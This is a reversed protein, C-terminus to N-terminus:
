HLSKGEKDNREEKKERRIEELIAKVEEAIELKSHIYADDNVHYLSHKEKERYPYSRLDKKLFDKRMEEENIESKDMIDLKVLSAAHARIITSSDIKKNTRAVIHYGIETLFADYEEITDGYKSRISDFVEAEVSLAYKIETIVKRYSDRLATDYCKRRYESKTTGKKKEYNEFDFDINRDVRAIEEYYESKLLYNIHESYEEFSNVDLITFINNNWFMRRTENARSIPTIAYNLDDSNLDNDWTPDAMFIGHIGYKDDDISILNRSHGAQTVPTEELTFGKDYSTDITVSFEECSIGVKECLVELLKAFGVCVMYENDLIYRLKRAQIKDNENEKYEKYNKVINYVAIYRELPSLDSKNIDEVMEDLRKDEKLYEELPYDYLDSTIVLAVSNLKIDYLSSNKFDERNRIPLKVVIDKGLEDLKVLLERLKDYHISEYKSEVISIVTNDSIFKLRDKNIEEIKTLDLRFNGSIARVKSIDGIVKNSSISTVKDNIILNAEICQSNITEIIDDTLEIDDFTFSCDSKKELMELVLNKSFNFKNFRIMIPNDLMNNRLAENIREKYMEFFSEKINLYGIGKTPIAVPHDDDIYIMEVDQSAFSSEIISDMRDGPTFKERVSISTISSSNIYEILEEINSTHRFYDKINSEWVKLTRM